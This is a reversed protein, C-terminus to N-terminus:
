TQMLVNISWLLLYYLVLDNDTPWEFIILINNKLLFIHSFGHYNM